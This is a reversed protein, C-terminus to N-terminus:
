AALTAKMMRRADGSLILSNQDKEMMQSARIDDYSGAIVFFASEVVQLQGRRNARDEAQKVRDAINHMEAHLVKSARTITYGQYCSEYTALFADFEGAQYRDVIIQRLRAPMDGSVVAPKLGALRVHETLAALVPKHFTFVLSDHGADRFDVIAQTVTPLKFLATRQRLASLESMASRQEALTRSADLIRTLDGERKAMAVISEDACPVIITTRFKGPTDTKLRRLRIRNDLALALRDMRHRQVDRRADLKDSEKGEPRKFIEKFRKHSTVPIPDGSPTRCRNIAHAIVPYLDIAGLPTETGTMGLFNDTIVGLDDRPAGRPMLAAGRQSQPNKAMHNEDYIVQEWAMDFLQPRNVAEEYGCIVVTGRGTGTPIPAGRDLFIINPHSAFEPDRNDLRVITFPNRVIKNLTRTWNTRQNAPVVALILPDKSPHLERRADCVGVGMYTKGFGMDDALTAVPNRLAHLVGEIQPPDYQEGDILAPVVFDSPLATQPMAELLRCILGIEADHDLLHRRGLIQEFDSIIYRTSGHAPQPPAKLDVATAFDKTFFQDENPDYSIPFPLAATDAKKKGKGAPGAPQSAAINFDAISLNTTGFPWRQAFQDCSERLKDDACFFYTEAASLSTTYWYGALHKTFGQAALLRDSNDNLPVYIFQQRNACFTLFPPATTERDPAHAITTNGFQRSLENRTLPCLLPWVCYLAPTIPVNAARLGTKKEFNGAAEPRGLFSTNWQSQSYGHYMIIAPATFNKGKLIENILYGHAAARARFIAGNPRDGRFEMGIAEFFPKDAADVLVDTGNNAKIISPKKHLNASNLTQM